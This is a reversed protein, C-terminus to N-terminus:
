AFGRVPSAARAAADIDALSSGRKLTAVEDRKGEIIKALVDTM